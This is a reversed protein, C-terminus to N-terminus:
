QEHSNVALITAPCGETEVTEVPFITPPLVGVDTKLMLCMNRWENKHHPHHANYVCMNKINVKIVYIYENHM